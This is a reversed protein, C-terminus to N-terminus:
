SHETGSIVVDVAGSASCTVSIFDAPGMFHGAIYDRLSLTDGAPLSFVSVVRHTTDATGGSPVLSLSVNVASGSTNCLSGQSLKVTTLAPVTYVTTASTSAIQTSVLLKPVISTGSMLNTTM